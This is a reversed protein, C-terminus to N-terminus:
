RTGYAPGTKKLWLSLLSARRALSMLGLTAEALSSQLAPQTASRVIWERAVTIKLHFLRLDEDRLRDWNTLRLASLLKAAFDQGNEGGLRAGRAAATGAADGFDGFAGAFFSGAKDSSQNFAAAEFLHIKEQSPTIEFRHKRLLLPDESVLLDDPRLFYAYVLGSLAWNVPASLEQWYDQALKELDKPNVKKQATKQKFENAIQQLHRPDFGGIFEREKGNLKLEKPPAMFMLHPVQSELVQIDVTSGKGEGLSRLAESLSILTTLSPM